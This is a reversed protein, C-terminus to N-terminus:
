RMTPSGALSTGPLTRYILTTSSMRTSMSPISSALGGHFDELGEVFDFLLGMVLLGLGLGVMVRSKRDNFEKWLFFIIFLGMTGFFPMFVVQWSYSPFFKLAKAGLAAPEQYEVEDEHFKKFASGMREHFEAGDNMALYLFFVTLLLWGFIVWRPRQDRKVVLYILGATLGAM